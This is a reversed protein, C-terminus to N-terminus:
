GSDRNGEVSLDLAMISKEDRVYLTSGVLSPATFSYRETLQCQSAIKLDDRDATALALQGDQDMIILKQHDGVVTAGPFVRKFWLNKGTLGDVAVFAANQGRKAGVLAGDLLIPTGMGLPNRRKSWLQKVVTKSNEETLQVACGLQRSSLFITDAGDWVPSTWIGEFQDLDPYDYKWRIAGNNPDVGVLASNTCHVLQREGRYEILIPSSHWSQFTQSTWVVDGSKQDFAVLSRGESSDEDLRGVPLIVTEGFAIPSTSFGCTHTQAGFESDLAHKWLLKGEATSLCVLTANRGVAFVREGVVLPTANPGSFEKGYDEVSDPVVALQKYEWLTKGTAADLSVVYESQDSKATRYMTFLAGRDVAIGSFGSGLPRRWLKKPGAEPWKDALGTTDVVFNRNPGGWQPWQANTDRAGAVVAFFAVLAIRRAHQANMELM